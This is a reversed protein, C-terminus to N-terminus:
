LSPTKLFNPTTADWFNQPAVSVEPTLIMGVEM